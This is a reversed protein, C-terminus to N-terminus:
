NFEFEIGNVNTFLSSGVPTATITINGSADLTFPIECINIGTSANVDATQGGVGFRTIRGATSSNATARMKGTRGAYGVGFSGTFTITANNKVLSAAHLRANTLDVDWVGSNGRVGGSVGDANTWALSVAANINGKTDVVTGAAFTGTATGQLLNLGGFYETSSTFGFIYREKASLVKCSANAKLQNASYSQYAATAVNPHLGDAQFWNPVDNNDVYLKCYDFVASGGKFWKPCRAQILPEYFKDSWETYLAGYNYRGHSTSIIPEMGAAIIQDVISNLNTQMATRTAPAMDDYDTVAIDNAGINVLVGVKKGNAVANGMYSIDAALGSLQSAITRGGVARSIVPVDIGAACMASRLKQEQRGLVTNVLSTEAPTSSGLWLLYDIQPLKKKGSPRLVGEDTRQKWGKTPRFLNEM